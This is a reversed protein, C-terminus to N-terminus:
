HKQSSCLTKDPTELLMQALESCAYSENLLILKKLVEEAESIRNLSKLLYAKKYILEPNYEDYKEILEIYCLANQFDNVEEYTTAMDLYDEVTVHSINCQALANIFVYSIFITIVFIKKLINM